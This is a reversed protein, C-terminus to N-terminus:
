PSGFCTPVTIAPALARGSTEDLISDLGAVVMRLGAKDVLSVLWKGNLLSDLGAVVMRLGAKGVSSVLKLGFSVLKDGLNVNIM